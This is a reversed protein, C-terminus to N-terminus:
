YATEPPLTLSAAAKVHVGCATLKVLIGRLAHALVSRRTFLGMADELMGLLSLYNALQVTVIAPLAAM